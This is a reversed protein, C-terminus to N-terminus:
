WGPQFGRDVPHAHDLVTGILFKDALPDLLKGLDSEQHAAEQCLVRRSLRHDSAVM